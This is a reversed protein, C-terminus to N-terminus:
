DITKLDYYGKAIDYKSVQQGALWLQCAKADRLYKELGVEQDYGTAGMLEMAKNTIWVAADAAFVKVISTKSLMGRSFPPGYIEPHHLMWELNYVAARTLELKIAMDAIIGAVITHQSVFKGGGKRGQTYEVAMEFAGQAIGLSLMASHVKTAATGAKFNNADAGPGALRYEKPVCVDDYYVAANHATRFGLKKEPKGFSLGLADRPVFIIAIGEEGLNPNTSCVTLYMEANDGNLPWVKSGNIIWEDGDLKAITRITKGQMDFNEIDCGGEPESMSFCSRVFKDGCFLPVFRDIVAKNGAKIAGGLHIGGSQGVMVSIGADGRALEETIIAHYFPSPDSGLGSYEKPFGMRVIDMDVLKQLIEEVLEENEELEARKPMIEKDVFERILKRIAKDEESLLDELYM